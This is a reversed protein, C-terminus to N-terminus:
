GNGTIEVIDIDGVPWHLVRWVILYVLEDDSNQRMQLATDWDFQITNGAWDHMRRKCVAERQKEYESSGILNPEGLSM